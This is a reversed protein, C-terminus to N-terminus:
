ACFSIRIDVQVIRNEVEPVSRFVSISEHNGSNTKCSGVVFRITSVPNVLIRKQIRSVFSYLPPHLIKRLPPAGVRTFYVM